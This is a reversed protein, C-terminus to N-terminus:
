FHKIFWFFCVLSYNNHPQMCKFNKFYLQSEFTYLINNNVKIKTAWNLLKKIRFNPM